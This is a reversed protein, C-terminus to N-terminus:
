GTRDWHALTRRVHIGMEPDEALRQLVSIAEDSERLRKVAALCNYRVDLDVHSDVLLAALAAFLEPVDAFHEAVIAAWQQVLVDGEIPLMRALHRGVRQHLESTPANWLRLIKLAAVRAMDFEAQDAVVKLFFSLVREDALHDELADIIAAKGYSEGRDDPVIRDFAVIQDQIADM